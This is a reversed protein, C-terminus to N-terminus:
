KWVVERHYTVEYCFAGMNDRGIKVYAGFMGARHLMRIGTRQMLQEIDGAHASAILPVGCNHASMLARAEDVDGIEDCIILEPNLTRTAIEIGLRKPYGSLVDICLNKSDLSFSLEGRTDIVVVRMPFPPRACVSAVGRLLTTKGVGPPSYILVGRCGDMGKLIRYIEEGVRYTKHPIRICLLDIDYVGVIREGECTARGGIGVRIGDGISIYGQNITDSYAYLSGGCMVRLIETIESSTLMIDLMINKGGMVVCSYRGSKLRIEEIRGYGNLKEIALIIHKPLISIMQSPLNKTDEDKSKQNNIIKM